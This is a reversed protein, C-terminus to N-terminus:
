MLNEIMQYMDWSLLDMQKTGLFWFSLRTVDSVAVVWPFQGGQLFILLFFHELMNAINKLLYVRERTSIHLFKFIIIPFNKKASKKVPLDIEM